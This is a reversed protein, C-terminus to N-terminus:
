IWIWSKGSNRLGQAERTEEFNFRRQLYFHDHMTLTGGIGSRIPYQPWTPKPSTAHKPDLTTPVPLPMVYPQKSQLLPHTSNAPLTIYIGEAKASSPQPLYIVPTTSIM